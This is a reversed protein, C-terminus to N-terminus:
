SRKRNFHLGCYRCTNENIDSTLFCYEVDDCDYSLLDIEQPKRKAIIEKKHFLDVSDFIKRIWNSMM